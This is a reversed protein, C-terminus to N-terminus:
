PKFKELWCSASANARAINCASSTQQIFKRLKNMDRRITIKLKWQRSFLYQATTHYLWIHLRWLISSKAIIFIHAISRHCTFICRHNLLNACGSDNMRWYCLLWWITLTNWLTWGICLTMMTCAPVNITNTKSRRRKKSHRM